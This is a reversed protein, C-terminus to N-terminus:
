AQKNKCAFASLCSCSSLCFQMCESFFEHNAFHNLMHLELSLISAYIVPLDSEKPLTQAKCVAFADELGFCELIQKALGEFRQTPKDQGQLPRMSQNCYLQLLCFQSALEKIHREFFHSQGTSSLSVIKIGCNSLAAFYEKSMKEVLEPCLCLADDNYM